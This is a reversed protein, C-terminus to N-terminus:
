RAPSRCSPPRPTGWGSEQRLEAFPVEYRTWEERLEVAIGFDNYCETCVKGDPDTNGDPVRFRLHPTAGAESRAAFAVGRYRSADYPRRPNRLELALGAYTQGQAALQGKVHWPRDRARPAM